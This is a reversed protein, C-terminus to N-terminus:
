CGDFTFTSFNIMLKWLETLFFNLVDFYLSILRLNNFELIQIDRFDETTIKWAKSVEGAENVKSLLRKLRV